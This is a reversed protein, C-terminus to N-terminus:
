ASMLEMWPQCCSATVKTSAPAPASTTNKMMLRRKLRQARFGTSSDQIACFFKTASAECSSFVGSVTIKALVESTCFCASELTALWDCHSSLVSCSAFRMCVKTSSM